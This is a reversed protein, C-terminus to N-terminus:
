LRPYRPNAPRIAAAIIPAEPREAKLV